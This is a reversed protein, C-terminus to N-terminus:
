FSDSVCFTPRYGINSEFSTRIMKVAHDIKDNEAIMIVGNKWSRVAAVGEAERCCDALFIHESGINWFREISKQSLKMERFLTKIDCHGLAKVANKIRANENVLHYMYKLATKDKAYSSVANFMEPTIDAISGIHPYLRRIQEFIKKIPESRDKDKETCHASLLKYGSLPLPLSKPTGSSILSCFGKKAALIGIYQNINEGGGAMDATELIDAEAGSVKMISQALTVFFVEKKPLFEPISCEYLIQAGNINYKMLRNILKATRENEGRLLESPSGFTYSFAQASSVDQINIMNSGLRRASMQVRMSLACTLSPANEVCSHGLLDCLLGNSTFHLFNDSPDFRKYFDKKLEPLNM